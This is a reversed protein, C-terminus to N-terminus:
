GKGDILKKFRISNNTLDYKEVTKAAESKLSAVISDNDFAMSVKNVIDLIDDVKCILANKNSAYERVGGCDTTVLTCGCFLSELGTLGFGEYRSTCLFVNSNNMLEAVQSSTAFQSYTIWSPWDEERKPAGFLHVKLDPYNKKLRYLVKIGIDSGKRFDKHYLMAVSHRNRKKYKDFFIKRDIGNPIYFIKNKTHRSIKDKLWKSVVVLTMDYNYTEILEEKSLTWGSEFDQILYIKKDVNLSDVFKATDAATAIVIDFDDFYKKELRYLNVKEIKNSLNFWQPEKKCIYNRILYVLIQPLNRSNKGKKSDYFLTVKNGNAVLFNAYEYVVKYGGVIKKTPMPLLFAIKM